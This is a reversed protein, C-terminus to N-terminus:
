YTLLIDLYSIIKLSKGWLTELASAFNAGRASVHFSGRTIADRADWPSLLSVRLDEHEVLSRCYEAFTSYPQHPTGSIDILQSLTLSHPPVDQRM